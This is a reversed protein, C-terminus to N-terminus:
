DPATQKDYDGASHRRLLGMLVRAIRQLREKGHRIQDPTLKANAELVDLGVACEV